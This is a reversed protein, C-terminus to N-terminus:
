NLHEMTPVDSPTAGLPAHLNAFLQDLANVDIDASVAARVTSSTQGQPVTISMLGPGVLTTPSAPVPLRTLATAEANLAPAPPSVALVSGFLAPALGGAALQPGAQASTASTGDNGVTGSSSNSSPSFSWTALYSHYVFFYVSSSVVAYNGVIQGASTIGCDADTVASPYNVTYYQGGPNRLCGVGQGDYGQSSYVNYGGVIQGSDNIGYAAGNYGSPDDVNTYQGGNLLFGHEVNSADWYIGVVEGQSNVGYAITGYAGAHPDAIQAYLGGGYSFGYSTGNAAM